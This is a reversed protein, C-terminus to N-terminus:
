CSRHCKDCIFTIWHYQLFVKASAPIDKTWFIAFLVKTVGVGPWSTSTIEANVGHLRSVHVIIMDWAGLSYGQALGSPTPNKGWWPPAPDGHRSTCVVLSGHLYGMVDGGVPELGCVTCMLVLIDCPICQQAHWMRLEYVATQQNKMRVPLMTIM